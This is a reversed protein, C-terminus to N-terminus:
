IGARSYRGEAFVEFPAYDGPFYTATRAYRIPSYEELKLEKRKQDIRALMKQVMEEPDTVFEWGAGVKAMWGENIMKAVEPSGSVPGPVGGMITHCGSAVCYCGISLAKESMWEPACGAIPLDGIDEGLGGETAVQALVTLIRSNDVCSGVHLVPPIGITQCVECLGPGAYDMVEPTLLGLKACAIANCGTTAVLVDNKILERVVYLHVDDQTVRANNCGVVGAAGRVRGNIINDNLPRFSERYVGGQMYNIYEHSFGAILHDVYDPIHVKDKKRNPFNDIGLRVIEKAIEL